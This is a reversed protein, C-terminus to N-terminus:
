FVVLCEHFIVFSFLFLIDLVTACNLYCYWGDLLSCLSFIFLFFTVSCELYLLWTKTCPWLSYIVLMVPLIRGVWLVPSLGMATGSGAKALSWMETHWWLGIGHGPPSKGETSLQTSFLPLHHLAVNKFLQNTIFWEWILLSCHFGVNDWVIVHSVKQLSSLSTLLYTNYPEFPAFHCSLGM